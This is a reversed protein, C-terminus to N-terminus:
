SEAGAPPPRAGPQRARSARHSHACAPAREGDIRPDRAMERLDELDYFGAGPKEAAERSGRTQGRARARAAADRTAMAARQSLANRERPGRHLVSRWFFIAALRDLRSAALSACAGFAAALPAVGDSCSSASSRRRASSIRSSVEGALSSRRESVRMTRM